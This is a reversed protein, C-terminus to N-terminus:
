LSVHVRSSLILPVPIVSSDDSYSLLRSELRHFYGMLRALGNPVGVKADGDKLRSYAFYSQSFISRRDIQVV